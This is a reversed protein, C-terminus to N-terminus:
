DLGAGCVRCTGREADNVVGCRPCDTSIAGHRSRYGVSLFWWGVVVLGLGPFFFGALHLELDGFVARGLEVASTAIAAVGLGFLVLGITRVLNRQGERREAELDRQHPDSM